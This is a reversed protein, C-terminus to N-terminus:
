TRDGIRSFLCVTDRQLVANKIARCLQLEVPILCFDRSFKAWATGCTNIKGKERKKTYRQQDAQLKNTM